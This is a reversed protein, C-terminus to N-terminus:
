DRNDQIIHRVPEAIAERHLAATGVQYLLPQFLTYNNRDVLVIELGHGSLKRACTLGGFGAGVVVVRKRDQPTENLAM